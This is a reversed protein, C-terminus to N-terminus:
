DVIIEISNKADSSRKIVEELTRGTCTIHGLKRGPSTIRKGYLHIKTSPLSLLKSLGIIRYTGSFNPPGLINKMVTPRVLEPKSLPFNLITRLHQEFQSISCGEISYHGSNHPRPAIENIFIEDKNSVFLEIGFIGIDNLCTVVNQAIIEAAENIKPSINAPVITTDLVNNKHINEAIPFTAIQGKKNRAVMISIETKFDVYKEAFMERNQFSNYAISIDEKCKILYNGRGDYSDECAKLMLPYEFRKAVLLLDNISNIKKFEPVPLNNEKLFKKQRFKNQILYLSHPSPFIPYNKLELNKLAKSNALEIEYTIVDSSKALDRIKNEDKFDAVILRDCLASAPCDKSPDLIVVKLSMRKAEQAIMKGIQGGGIIGIKIPNHLSLEDRLASM